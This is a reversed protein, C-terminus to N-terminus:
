KNEFIDIDHGKVAGEEKAEDLFIQLRPPWVCAPGKRSLSTKGAIRGCYDLNEDEEAKM